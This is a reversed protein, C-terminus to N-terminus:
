FRGPDILAVLLYVISAIGLVAAIVELYIV